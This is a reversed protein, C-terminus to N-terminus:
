LAELRDLHIALGARDLVRAFADEPPPRDPRVLEWLSEGLLDRAEQPSRQQDVGRALLREDAIEALLPRLEIQVDGATRAHAAREARALGTIPGLEGVVRRPQPESAAARATRAVARWAIGAGLAAAVVEGGDAWVSM